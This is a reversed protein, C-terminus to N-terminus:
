WEEIRLGPVRAFERLNRTVLVFDHALAIAAILLDNAGIPTGARELAARVMGYHASAEDDFPISSFPDLLRQFGQLNRDVHLSNRAGFLLEARVVSCCFIQTPDLLQLRDILAQEGRALGIWINTDLLFSRM